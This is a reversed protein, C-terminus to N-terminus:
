EHEPPIYQPLEISDNTPLSSRLQLNVYVPFTAATNISSHNENKKSPAAQPRLLTLARPLSHYHARLTVASWMM